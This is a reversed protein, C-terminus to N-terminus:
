DEQLNLRRCGTWIKFPWMRWSDLGIRAMYSCTAWHWWCCIRPVPGLVKPQRQERRYDYNGVGNTPPSLMTCPQVQGQMALVPAENSAIAKLYREIRDEARGSQLRLSFKYVKTYWLTRKLNCGLIWGFFSRTRWKTNRHRWVAEGNHGLRMNSLCIKYIIINYFEGKTITIFKYKNLM